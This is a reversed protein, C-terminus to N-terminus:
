DEGEAAEDDDDEDGYDYTPLFSIHASGSNNRSISSSSSSRSSISSTSCSGGRGGSGMVVAAPHSGGSSGKKRQQNGTLGLLESALLRCDLGHMASLVVPPSALGLWTLSEILFDSWNRKYVEVFEFRM